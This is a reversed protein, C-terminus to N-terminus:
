IDPGEPEREEFDSLVSKGKRWLTFGGDHALKVQEVKDDVLFRRPQLVVLDDLPPLADLLHDLEPANRRMWM